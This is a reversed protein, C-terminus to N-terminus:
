LPIVKFTNWNKRSIDMQFGRGFFHVGILSPQSGVDDETLLYNEKLFKLM